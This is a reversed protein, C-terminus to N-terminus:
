SVVALSVRENRENRTIGGARPDLVPRGDVLFVYSHHGHHLPVQTFWSGDLQRQMPTVAPNWGNFEGVLAVGAANPAQCYFNVPKTMNKASYRGLPVPTKGLSYSNDLFM